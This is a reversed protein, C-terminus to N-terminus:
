YTFINNGKNSKVFTSRNFIESSEEIYKFNTEIIDIETNNERILSPLKWMSNILVENNIAETNTIYFYTGEIKGNIAGLYEWNDKLIM